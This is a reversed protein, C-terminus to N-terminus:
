RPSMGNARHPLRELAGRTKFVRNALKQRCLAVVSRWGTADTPAGAGHFRMADPVVRDRLFALWRDQIARVAFDSARMVGNDVMARYVKPNERLFDIMGLVDSARRVPVYDLDSYRLDAFAPENGLLAPVSARWADILKSAPKTRLIGPAEDRCDLVLDVKSYDWWCTDNVEFEISRRRLAAQLPDGEVWGPNSTTRGFYGIRHIRTGRAGDRPILGPQPWLPLYKTYLGTESSMNPVITWRTTRLPGRNARIGVIYVDRFPTTMSDLTDGHAINIAGPELRESISTEFGVDTLPSQLQLYSQVIWNNVSGQFRSPHQDIATANLVDLDPWNRKLDRGVFHIRM